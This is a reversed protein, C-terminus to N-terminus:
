PATITIASEQVLDQTRRRGVLQLTLISTGDGRLVAGNRLAVEMRMVGEGRGTIQLPEGFQRGEGTLEQRSHRDIVLVVAGERVFAERVAFHRISTVMLPVSDRTVTYRTSDSWTTGPEMATPLGLWSEQWGQAAALSAAACASAACLQPVAGRVPTAELTFPVTVGAPSHWTTDTGSRVAFHSVTVPIPRSSSSADDGWIVLLESRVSDMRVLSDVRSTLQAAVEIRQARKARGDGLRWPTALLDVPVAAVPAAEPARAVPVRGGCATMVLVCSGLLVLRM